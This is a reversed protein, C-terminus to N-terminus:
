KLLNQNEKLYELMAIVEDRLYMVKYSKNNKERRIHIIKGYSFHYGWCELIYAYLSIQLSYIVGKCHQLHALPGLMRDDKKIFTTTPIGNEKKYYGSEFKIEDKNTKWDYIIIEKGQIILLDMTGAVRYEPHYVIKEHHVKNSTLEFVEILRKIPTLKPSLEAESIDSINEIISHIDTGFDCSQKTTAEWEKLIVEVKVGRETAKKKAWFLSNFEPTFIGILQTASIYTNDEQDSYRHLIPDMKVEKKELTDTM